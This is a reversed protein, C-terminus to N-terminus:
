VIVRTLLLIPTALILTELDKHSWLHFEHYGKIASSLILVKMKYVKMKRVSNGSTQSFDKVSVINKKRFLGWNQAIVDIEVCVLSIYLKSECDPIFNLISVGTFSGILFKIGLRHLEGIWLLLYCKNSGRNQWALLYCCIPM